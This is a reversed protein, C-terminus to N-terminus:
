FSESLKKFKEEILNRLAVFSRPYSSVNQISPILNDTKKIEKKKETMLYNTTCDSSSISLISCMNQRIKKVNLLDKELAYNMCVTSYKALIKLAQTHNSILMHEIKKREPEKTIIQQILDLREQKFEKKFRPLGDSGLSNELEDNVYPLFFDKDVVVIYQLHLAALLYLVYKLNGVGRLDVFSIRNLYTRITPQNSVFDKLVDADSESEAIIVLDSFFFESNRYRHFKEYKEAKIDHNAYFEEELKSTVSKFGRKKDAAKRVLVLDEHRLEDIITPSHSTFIIQAESDHNRIDRLQSVFERQAQPHLNSEPEEIGLIVNKKETSALYRYLAIVLMSKIGTGCDSVNFSNSHDVIKLGLDFLLMSYDLTKVYDLTLEYSHELCYYRELKKTISPFHKEALEKASARVSPSVRDRNKTRKRFEKEIVRRLLSNEKAEMKEADRSAPILVFSIDSFIRARLDEQLAALRTGTTAWKYEAKKNNPNYRFRVKFSDLISYNKYIQSNPIDTFVVEIISNSTPTYSHNGNILNDKEEEFNFFVNLARLISSKGSNNKGVIACVDGLTFESKEFSRFRRIYIKAIKM